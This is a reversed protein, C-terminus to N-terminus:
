IHLKGDNEIFGKDGTRYLRSPHGDAPTINHFKSATLEEQGMYGRSVQPGVVCIEGVQNPAFPELKGEECIRIDLNPLAKGIVTADIATQTSEDQTLNELTCIVTCETPGYAHLLEVRKRWHDLLGPPSAEGGVSVIRLSPLRRGAPLTSLVSPTCHFFNVQNSDIVDALYEGVLVEPHNAFCLTGGHALTVAYEFVIANFAFSALQLMRSHPGTKVFSRTASVYHSLNSHEVMVGKPQGTSGSTFVIYALDDDAVECECTSQPM